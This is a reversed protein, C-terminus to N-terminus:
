LVWNVCEWGVAKLDVKMNAQVEWSTEERCTELRFEANM